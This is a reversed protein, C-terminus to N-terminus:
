VELWAEFCQPILLNEKVKRLKLGTMCPTSVPNAQEMRFKKLIEKAYSEQSIFVGNKSQLVEIGLFHHLKGMDTMEFEQMMSLKFDDLMESRNGIFILDDVYLSVVM